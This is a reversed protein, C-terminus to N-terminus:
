TVLIDPAYARMFTTMACDVEADIQEASITEIVGALLLPASIAMGLAVLQRAAIIPDGRRLAGADMAEALFRALMDQTQRPAREYFIRGVEPFRGTEGHVLRNLAIGKASTLKRLYQVCFRRLAPEIGDRSHLILSLEARFAETVRDIVAAFLIDKSSFYSWLTGKSGGLKAAIASMTTGAYGHELFSKAAVDLIADRRAERRVERRSPNFSSGNAM